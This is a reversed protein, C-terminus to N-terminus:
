VAGNQKGDKIKGADGMGLGSELFDAHSARRGIDGEQRKVGSEMPTKELVFADIELNNIHGGIEGARRDQVSVDVVVTGHGAGDAGGHAPLGHFDQQKGDGFWKQEQHAFFIDFVDLLELTLLDGATRRAPRRGKDRLFHQLM